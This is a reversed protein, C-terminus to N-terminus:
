YQCFPVQCSLFSIHIAGPSGHRAVGIVVAPRRKPTHRRPRLAAFGHLCLYLVLYARETVIYYSPRSLIPSLSELIIIGPVVKPGTYSILKIISHYLRIRQEVKRRAVDVQAQTRWYRAKPYDTRESFYEVVAVPLLIPLEPM